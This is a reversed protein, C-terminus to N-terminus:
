RKKRFNRYVGGQELTYGRYQALESITVLQYGARRLQPILVLSADKTPGYIDHMLIIDGDRVNNMVIRVTRSSDRHEWDRTDVSWLIIPKQITQVVRDDITGGPPRMTVATHGILKKIKADTDDLEKKISEDTQRTLDPHNYTHNGIECGMKDAEILANKYSNINCGIVYFTAKGQNNKLCKLIDETYRGPGDDYTLAVMKKNPDLESALVDCATSPNGKILKGDVKCVAVVQYSYKKDKKVNSDSYYLKKTEKVKKYQGKANKKYIYYVDAGKIKKWTLKIKKKAYIGVVEPTAPKMHAGAVESKASTYAKKKQYNAEIKYYYSKGKEVDYDTYSNKKVTALKKYGKNSRNSRYVTYSTARNVKKWSVQIRSNKIIKTKVKTPTVLTVRLTVLESERLVTDESIQVIKYTYEQGMNVNYDHCKIIGEQGSLTALITYADSGSDCRQIQFTNEVSDSEWQLLVNQYDSITAQLQLLGEAKAGNGFILIMIGMMFISCIYIRKMQKVDMNERMYDRRENYEM